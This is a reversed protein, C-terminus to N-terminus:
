ILLRLENKKLKEAEKPTCTWAALIQLRHTKPDMNKKKINKLIIDAISSSVAFVACLCSDQIAALTDNTITWGIQVITVSIVVTHKICLTVPSVPCQIINVAQLKVQFASSLVLHSDKTM